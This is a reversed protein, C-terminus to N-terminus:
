SERQVDDDVETQENEAPDPIAAIVARINAVAQCLPRAIADAMSVPVSINEILEATVQLAEKISMDEENM